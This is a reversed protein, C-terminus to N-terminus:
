HHQKEWPAEKASLVLEWYSALWVFGLSFSKIEELAQRVKIVFPGCFNWDQPLPLVRVYNAKLHHSHVPQWEWVSRHTLAACHFHGRYKSSYLFVAIYLWSKRHLGQHSKLGPLLKYQRHSYQQKWQLFEGPSTLFQLNPAKQWWPIQKTQNNNQIFKMNLINIIM